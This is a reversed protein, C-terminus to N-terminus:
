RYTKRISNRHKEVQLKVPKFLWDRIALAMLIAMVTGFFGMEIGGV